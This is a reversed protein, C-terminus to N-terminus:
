YMLIPPSIGPGPIITVLPEEDTYHELDSEGLSDSDSDSWESGSDQYSGRVEILDSVEVELEVM